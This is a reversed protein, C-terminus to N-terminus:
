MQTSLRWCYCPAPRYCCRPPACQFSHACCHLTGVFLWRNAEEKRREETLESSKVPAHAACIAADKDSVIHPESRHLKTKNRRCWVGEWFSWGRGHLRAWSQQQLCKSQERYPCPSSPVSQHKQSFIQPTKPPVTLSDTRFSRLGPVRADREWHSLNGEDSWWASSRTSQLYHMKNLNHCILVYQRLCNIIILAWKSSNWTSCDTCFLTSVTCENIWCDYTNYQTVSWSKNISPNQHAEPRDIM